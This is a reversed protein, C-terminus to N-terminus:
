LKLVSAINALEVVNGIDYEDGDGWMRVGSGVEEGFHASLLGGRGQLQIKGEIAMSIVATLM